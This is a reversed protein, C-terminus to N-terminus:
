QQHNILRWQYVTAGPKSRRRLHVSAASKYPRRPGRSRLRPLGLRDRRSQIERTYRKWCKQRHLSGRRLRPWSALWRIFLMWRFSEQKLKSSTCLFWNLPDFSCKSMFAPARITHPTKNGIVRCFERTKTDASMSLIDQNNTCPDFEAGHRHFWRAKTGDVEITQHGEGILYLLLVTIYVHM